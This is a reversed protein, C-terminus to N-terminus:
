LGGTLDYTIFPRIEITIGLTDIADAIASAKDAYSRGGLGEVRAAIAEFANRALWGAVSRDIVEGPTARRYLGIERPLELRRPEGPFARDPVVDVREFDAPGRPAGQVTYIGGGFHTLSTTGSIEVRPNTEDAPLTVRIEARQMASRGAAQNIDERGIGNNLFLSGETGISFTSGHVSSLNGAIQGNTVDRITSGYVTYRGGTLTFLSQAEAFPASTDRFGGSAPDWQFHLFSEALEPQDAM